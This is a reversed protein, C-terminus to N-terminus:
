ECFSDTGYRLQRYDYNSEVNQKLDPVFYFQGRSM